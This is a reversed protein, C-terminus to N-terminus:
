VTAEKPIQHDAYIKGYRLISDVMWDYGYFGKSNRKMSRAEQNTVEKVSVSAGWGDGWSYYFSRKALLEKAKEKAKITTFPKIICYLRDQGSWKGNWSGCNPMSLIFALKM